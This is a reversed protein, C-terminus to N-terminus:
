NDPFEEEDFSFGQKILEEKAKETLSFQANLNEDYSVELLDRQYLDILTQDMDDIMVQYLEPMVEELIDMDFKYFPEGDEDIGDLEAAGESVLYEMIEVHDEDSPDYEM